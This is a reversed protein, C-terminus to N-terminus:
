AKERGAPDGNGGGRRDGAERHEDVVAMDGGATRLEKPDIKLSPRLYGLLGKRIRYQRVTGDADVVITTIRGLRRGEASLVPRGRLELGRRLLELTEEDQAAVRLAELSDVGITDADFSHVHRAHVVVSTEPLSGRTLVVLAVRHREPDVVIDAPRGLARGSDLAVVERRLVKRLTTAM